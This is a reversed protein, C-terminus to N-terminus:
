AHLAALLEAARQTEQENFLAIGNRRLLAATVGEGPICRGAFHGDHIALCGCSPSGEKLVALRAGNAVAAELARRAGRLFAETVDVGEKTVVQATGDLVAQGGAGRIEAPPRPVPLGGAVEPCFPTVLGQDVWRKLFVSEVTCTGGDYRVPQGLLCASVLVKM